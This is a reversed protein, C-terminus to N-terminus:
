LSTVTAPASRPESALMARQRATPFGFYPLPVLRRLSTRISALVPLSSECQSRRSTVPSFAIETAVTGFVSVLTKSMRSRTADGIKVTTHRTSTFKKGRSINRRYEFRDSSNTNTEVLEHGFLNETFKKLWHIALNSRLFRPCRPCAANAICAPANDRTVRIRPVCTGIAM